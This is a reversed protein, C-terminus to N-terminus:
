PSAKFHTKKKKQDLLGKGKFLFLPESDAKQRSERVGLCLLYGRMKGLSGWSHWSGAEDLEPLHHSKLVTRAGWIPSFSHPQPGAPMRDWRDWLCSGPM